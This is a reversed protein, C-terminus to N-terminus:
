VPSRVYSYFLCGDVFHHNEHVFDHNKHHLKAQENYRASSAAYAYGDYVDSEKM